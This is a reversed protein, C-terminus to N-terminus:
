DYKILTRVINWNKLKLNKVIKDYNKDTKYIVVVDSDILISVSDSNLVYPLM